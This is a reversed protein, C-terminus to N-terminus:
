GSKTAPVKLGASAAGDCLTVRCLPHIRYEIGTRADYCRFRSRLKPGKLFMRGGEVRFAAGVAVEEVLKRAPDPADYRALAVLLGRDSCTAAAPDQLYRGLAGSVDEPLAGQEVVPALIRGFESKWQAGHPLVRRSFPKRPRVHKEWTVAHAIEHLLTTLFAYPNLDDNVTIRHITRGRVPARHDGLKSRRARVSRVEVAAGGLHEGRLLDAVYDATGDPLHGRIARIAKGPEMAIVAEAAENQQRKRTGADLRAEGSGGDMFAQWGRGLM